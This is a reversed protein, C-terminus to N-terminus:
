GHEMIRRKCDPCREMLDRISIDTDVEAVQYKEPLYSIDPQEYPSKHNYGRQIMEAALKDHQVKMSKPEIQVVPEMRGDMKHQKVFNHRHKHLEGHAGLLHKKCLLVPELMWMRM